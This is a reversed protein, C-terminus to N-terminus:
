SATANKTTPKRVELIYSALYNIQHLVNIQALRSVRVCLIGRSNTRKPSISSGLKNNPGDM